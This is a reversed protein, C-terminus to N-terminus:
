PTSTSLAELASDISASDIVAAGPENGHIAYTTEGMRGIIVREEQGEGFSVTVVALPTDVGTDVQTQVFSEARLTSLTSLLNEVAAQDTGGPEPAVQRWAEGPDEEDQLPNKEFNMETGDRLVSIATASFPRFDFVEKKRYVSPERDLDDILAADMTFIIDRSEDRGFVVGDPGEAGVLLVHKSNGADVTVTMGPNALGFPEIEENTDYSEREVGVMEASGVRGVLGEVVGFDARANLPSVIRWNGDTKEFRTETKNNEVSFGIVDPGIFELLSRDRLEFSDKNFTTEVASAILFVRDSGTLTAYRDAGTPTEDGVALTLSASNNETSFGISVTPQALGFPSLDSPAEEVVRRIELSALSEVIASVANNDATAMFPEVVTWNEEGGDRNLRTSGGDRTTVSLSVITGPEVDLAQENVDTESAPPRESEIFYAYSGLALFLVFMTGTSRLGRMKFGPESTTTIEPTDM